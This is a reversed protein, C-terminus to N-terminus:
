ADSSAALQINIINSDNQKTFSSIIRDHLVAVPRGLSVFAETLHWLAAPRCLPGPKAAGDRGREDERARRHTRSNREQTQAFVASM